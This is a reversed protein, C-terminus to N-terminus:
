DPHQRQSDNMQLSASSPAGREGKERTRRVSFSKRPAGLSEGPGSVAFSPPPLKESERESGRNKRTSLRRFLGVAASEKKAAPESPPMVLAPPSTPGDTNMNKVGEAIEDEGHTRARPRSRGGTPKEGAMEYTASNTFAAAPAQPMSISDDGPPAPIGLAGPNAEKRDREFKERVLFYVSILPNYANVPDMGLQVTEDSPKTLTDRSTVSNRRKYFDFVGRKREEGGGSNQHRRASLRVARQYEESEIVKTLRSTISDPTGFDFGAMGEVVQPDLPLQLPERHPLM